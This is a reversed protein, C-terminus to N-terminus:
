GRSLGPVWQIPPQTPGLAPRSPHPFDRGGLRSEILPGDLGYCTAIGVSSDRGGWEQLAQYFENSVEKWRSQRKVHWLCFPFCSNGTKRYLYSKCDRSPHMCQFHKFLSPGLFYKSSVRSCNWIYTIPHNLPRYNESRATITMSLLRCLLMVLHCQCKSFCQRGNTDDEPEM